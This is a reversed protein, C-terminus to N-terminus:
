RLNILRGFEVNKIINVAADTQKEILNTWNKLELKNVCQFFHTLTGHPTGHRTLFIYSADVAKLLSQTSSAGGLENADTKSQQNVKRTILLSYNM